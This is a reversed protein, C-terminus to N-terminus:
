QLFIGPLLDGSHILPEFHFTQGTAAGDGVPAGAKTRIETDSPMLSQNLTETITMAMLVFTGLASM